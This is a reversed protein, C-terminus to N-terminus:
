REDAAFDSRAVVQAHAFDGQRAYNLWYFSTCVATLAAGVVLITGAASVLKARQQRGFHIAILGLSFLSLELLFVADGVFQVM